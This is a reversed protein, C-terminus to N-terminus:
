DLREDSDVPSDPVVRLRANPGQQDMYYDFDPWEFSFAVQRRSSKM